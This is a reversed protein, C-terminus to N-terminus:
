KTPLLKFVETVAYGIRARTTDASVQQQVEGTATGVWIVFGTRADLLAIGLAASSVGDLLKRASAPQEKLGIATMDIGAFYAVLLDPNASAPVIDRDRLEKNMMFQIEADIDVGRPQWQGEPDILAQATAFWNYTKYASFDVGPASEAAVKIDSVPVTTCASLMVAFLLSSLYRLTNM